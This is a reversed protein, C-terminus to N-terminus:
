LTQAVSQDPVTTAVGAGGLVQRCATVLLGAAVGFEDVASSTPM